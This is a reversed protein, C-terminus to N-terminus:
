GRTQTNALVWFVCHFGADIWNDSGTRAGEYQIVQQLM